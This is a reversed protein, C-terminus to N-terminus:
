NAEKQMRYKESARELKWAAQTTIDHIGRSQCLAVATIFIDLAEDDAHEKTSFQSAEVYECVEIIFKNERDVVEKSIGFEQFFDNLKHVFNDM